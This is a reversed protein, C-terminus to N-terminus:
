GDAREKIILEVHTQIDRLMQWSHSTLEILHELRSRTTASANSQLRIARAAEQVPGLADAFHGILMELRVEQPLRAPQM